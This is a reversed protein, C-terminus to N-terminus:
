GANLAEVPTAESDLLRKLAWSRSAESDKPDSVPMVDSPEAARYTTGRFDFLISGPEGYRVNSIEARLREVSEAGAKLLIKVLGPVLAPREAAAEVKASLDLLTPHRQNMQVASPNRRHVTIALDRPSAPSIGIRVCNKHAAIVMRTMMDFDYTSIDGGFTRMIIGYGHPKVVNLHHDGGFLEALVEKCYVQDESLVVPEKKKAM